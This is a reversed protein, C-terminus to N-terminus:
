ELMIGDVTKFFIEAFFMRDLEVELPMYPGCHFTVPKLTRFQRRVWKRKLLAQNSKDIWISRGWVVDQSKTHSEIAIPLLYYIFIACCTSVIPALWYVEIPLIDYCKITVVNTVVSIIFGNAMLAAILSSLTGKYSQDAIRLANYWKFFKVDMKIGLPLKNLIDLYRTQTELLYFLTPFYIAFFRCCEFVWINCFIYRVVLFFAKSGNPFLIPFTFVFPDVRMTVMATPFIAHMARSIWKWFKELQHNPEITYALFEVDTSLRFDCTNEWSIKLSHNLVYFIELLL